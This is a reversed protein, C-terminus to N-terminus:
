QLTMVYGIVLGNIMGLICAVEVVIFAEYFYVRSVQWKSLGISRLVGIEKTQSYINATMSASLSFFSLFMVVLICGNFIM